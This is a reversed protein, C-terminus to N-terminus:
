KPYRAAKLVLRVEDLRDELDQVSAKWTRVAKLGLVLRLINYTVLLEKGNNEKKM